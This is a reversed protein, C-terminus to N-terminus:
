PASDAARARHQTISLRATILLGAVTAATLGAFAAHFGAATSTFSALTVVLLASGLSGGTRQLINATATADPLQARTVTAYAASMAPIGALSIGVGRTFQLVEIAALSAHAPLFVFPLTAAATIALGITATTGGGIRDTLRGGLRMSLAAGCGYPLLLLGTAVTGQGRLQEYYLPLIILGGFLAAGSFFVSAQAAAYVQSTFLRLDLLPRDSRLSRWTFAALAVIGPLLTLLVPGRLLARDESATTIGYTFLPLGAALLVFGRLDLRGATGRPGRPIARLGLTLAILGIPINVLFLWRWSVHAILLGGVVPGIAPALVVAIGVTNMVRGMRSPGAAQGLVTQGAPILLGGTAGQIVRLVILAGLSPALACLGSAVTFGALAWLWLRGPGLHRGLWACAPLTGALALLYGSTIWQASALSGHLDRGITDLGVNVLSTDLNAMFAGFVIVAAVRWVEAPVADLQRPRATPVPSSPM